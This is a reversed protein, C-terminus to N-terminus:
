GEAGEALRRGAVVTTRVLDNFSLLPESGTQPRGPGASPLYANIYVAIYDVDDLYGLPM